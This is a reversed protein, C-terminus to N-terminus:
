FCIITVQHCYECFKCGHQDLDRIMTICLDKRQYWKYIGRTKTTDIIPLIGNLETELVRSSDIFGLKKSLHTKYRILPSTNSELILPKKNKVSNIPSFQCTPLQWVFQSKAGM